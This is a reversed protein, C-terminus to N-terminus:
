EAWQGERREFRRKPTVPNRKRRKGSVGRRVPPPGAHPNSLTQPNVPITPHGPRRPRVHRPAPNAGARLAFDAARSVIDAVARPDNNEDRRPWNSGCSSGSTSRIDGSVDGEHLRQMIVIIASQEDNLRNSMLERVFRVTKERETDSEAKIVNHPDDLLIRDGREGTSVGGVSTALKFGTQNNELRREGTKIMTFRDGWLQKYAPSTVLRPWRRQLQLPALPRKPYLEPSRSNM